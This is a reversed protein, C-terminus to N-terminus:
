KPAAPMNFRADDIPINQNVNIFKRTTGFHNDDLYSVQVAFPLTVGDVERYDEFDTQEPDLGLKTETLVTRRLLLGAQTDFFLKETKNGLSLAEIVYAERDSIKERGIVSMRSYQDKLKFDKYLDLQRKIWELEVSSMERLEVPTKIWGTTGNFGQYTVGEPTTIVALYKDPAKQFTEITWTEGRNIMAAKPTGSNILKPRLLSVKMMRTRIKDIAAKGGMAQFYKDFVQDVTPLPDLPKADSDARTTDPFAGQGTLPISVAKVQGRHCTNCTVVTRDGFNARNLDFTMQIHQRAIQKAPKDDMWYKGNEAIHCYDCRVGLSTRMLHMVPLLQSDPMGKLVQINKRVQEVTKDQHRNQQARADSTRWNAVTFGLALGLVIGLVISRIGYTFSRQTM